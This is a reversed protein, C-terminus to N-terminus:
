VARNASHPPKSPNTPSPLGHNKSVPGVRYSRYGHNGVTKKKRNKLGARWRPLPTKGVQQPTAALNWHEM